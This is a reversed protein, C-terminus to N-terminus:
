GEWEKVPLFWDFPIKFLVGSKPERLLCEPKKDEGKLPLPFRIPRGARPAPRCHLPAGTHAGKISLGRRGQPIPSLLPMMTVNSVKGTLSNAIPLYSLSKIWIKLPVDSALIDNRSRHV